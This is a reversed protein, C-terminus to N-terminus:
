KIKDKLVIILIYDDNNKEFKLADFVMSSIPRIVIM